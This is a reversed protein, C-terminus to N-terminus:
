QDLKKITQPTVDAFRVVDTGRHDKIFQKADSLKEFPILEKGMPGFVDSGIVFYAAKADVLTVSYYDMVRLSTIDSPNKSPSYRKVEFYYKFMDKAGDFFARSGDRFVAVAIWDPYKAVFMGCVPCKDRASPKFAGTDEAAMSSVSLFLAFLIVIIKRM